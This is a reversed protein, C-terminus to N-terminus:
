LALTSGGGIQGARRDAVQANLAPAQDKAFTSWHKVLAYATCTLGRAGWSALMRGTRLRLEDPTAGLDGFQKRLRQIQPATTPNVNSEFYLEAIADFLPDPKRPRKPKAPQEDEGFLGNKSDGGLQAAACEKENNSCENNTLTRNEPFQFGSLPNNANSDMKRNKPLPNGITAIPNQAAERFATQQNEPLPNKAQFRPTPDSPSFAPSGGVDPANPTEYVDYTYGAVKGDDDRLVRRAVYGRAMLEDLTKYVAHKGDPGCSVLHAVMVTWDSPKSLLYALLGKAQFSLRPDELAAKAIQLFPTERSTAHIIM